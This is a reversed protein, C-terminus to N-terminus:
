ICGEACGGINARIEGGQEIVRAAAGIFIENQAVACVPEVCCECLRHSISVCAIRARSSRRPAAPNVSSKLRASPAAPFPQLAPVILAFRKRIVGVDPLSSSVFPSISLPDGGDPQVPSAFVVRAAWASSLVPPLPTCDILSVAIAVPLAIAECFTAPLLPLHSCIDAHTRLMSPM